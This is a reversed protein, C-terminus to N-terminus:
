LLDDDDDDGGVKEQNAGGGIEDEGDDEDKEEKEEEGKKGSGQETKASVFMGTSAVGGRQQQQQQEAELQAMPDAAMSAATAMETAAGKAAQQAEASIYSLDTNYQAQVSRKLRLMDRFSDESGTEIEFTNWEKWFNRHTRPDCFQSAYKYIARARDIEGLKRELAAFRLCMEATQRDPLVEIASEYIARTAALGFSAATKAIYFSFMDFRQEDGVERTAREYIKMARKALGHEEELAGYKLFLIKAFKPPCGSLAQEFLDRAREIKSGGYRKIFKSLYVNWIEFAIPYGFSEVGREYVKFADEHYSREELFAAYNIITQANAIKLELVRDYVAKAGETSGISEELDSYFTWLKLSKFLRSQPPLTDDHYSVGKTHRPPQVSRSMVRLAADYNSHRLEMEAWSIWIEALDDVRKYPVAVAREFIKRASELDPIPLDEDSPLTISADRRMQEILKLGEVGGVEYFRAFNLFLQHHNATAKRPNITEIAKKYTEIIKDDQEGFLAVRKEWEQVDDPNRRLMVDNVLFPRAEMLEEFEKMREDLEEERQGRNESADEEDGEELENMLYSIVGEESEAFADFIVSFDRVTMVERLGRQFTKKALDIEGRKLHYTALGVWLRGAQDPFQPMNALIISRVPLLASHRPDLDRVEVSHPQSAEEEDEDMGTEEPYREVLDVWDNFLQYPSKGENSTYDGKGAELALRLLLKAAELIRPAPPASESEEDEDGSEPRLLLKAYRETLSSDVALYRRWVRLGTEGGVQEAWRLYLKWVRLHLSPPLLRLSRDFTRRAHTLSLPAPCLPHLFLSLYFLHLRPMSPMCQLSRECAGVLATWEKYGVLGDLAGGQKWQWQWEDDSDEELLGPGVDLNRKSSQNIRKHLADLGGRPEGLIYRARAYLYNRHLAYSNPFRALAREYISVIRRLATRNDSSALPGLLTAEIPSFRVDPPARKRYNATEIHDIYARWARLSDQNLLLDEELAIDSSPVLSADTSPSPIPWTLPLQSVVDALPSRSPGPVAEDAM